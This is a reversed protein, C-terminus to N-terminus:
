SLLKIANKPLKKPSNASIPGEMLFGSATYGNNESTLRSNKEKAAM